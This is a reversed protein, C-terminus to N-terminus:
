FAGWDDLGPTPEDIVAIFGIAERTAGNSDVYLMRVLYPALLAAQPSQALGGSALFQVVTGAPATTLTDTYSDALANIGVETCILPPTTVQDAAISTVSAITVDAPLDASVDFDIPKSELSRMIQARGRDVGNRTHFADPNSYVFSGPTPGSGGFFGLDIFVPVTM